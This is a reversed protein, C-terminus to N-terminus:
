YKICSPSQLPTAHMIYIELPKFLHHSASLLNCYATVEVGQQVTNSLNNQTLTFCEWLREYVYIVHVTVDKESIACKMVYPMESKM